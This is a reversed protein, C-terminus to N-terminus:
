RRQGPAQGLQFLRTASAVVKLKYAAHLPPTHSHYNGIATMVDGGARDLYHRLIAGAAAINFCSRALLRERVEAPGLGTYRALPELWLTNIQMVGLDETGNGNRVALGAVGGETAQISPLVRPPLNYISAVLSM